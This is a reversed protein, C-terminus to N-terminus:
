LPPSSNCNGKQVSGERLSVQSPYLGPPNHDPSEMVLADREILETTRDATIM